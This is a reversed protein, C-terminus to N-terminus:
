QDDEKKAKRDIVTVTFLTCDVESEEVSIVSVYDLPHTIKSNLYATIAACVTEKPLDILTERPFIM